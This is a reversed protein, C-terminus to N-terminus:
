KSTKTRHRRLNHQRRRTSRHRGYALALKLLYGLAYLAVLGIAWPTVEDILKDLMASALVKDREVQAASRPPERNSQGGEWTTAESPVGSGSQRTPPTTETGNFPHEKGLNLESQLGRLAQAANSTVLDQYLPRVVEKVSNRIERGLPDEAVKNTATPTPAARTTTTNTATAPKDSLGTLPAPAGPSEGLPMRRTPQTSTTSDTGAQTCSVKILQDQADPVWQSADILRNAPQAPGNIVPEAQLLPALLSAFTLVLSRVRNLSNLKYRM